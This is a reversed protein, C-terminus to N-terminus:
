YWGRNGARSKRGSWAPVPRLFPAKWRLQAPNLRCGWDAKREKPVYIELGRENFFSAGDAGAKISLPADAVM